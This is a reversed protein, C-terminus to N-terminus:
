AFTGYGVQTLSLRIRNACSVSEPLGQFSFGISHAHADWAAKSLIPRGALRLDRLIGKAIASKLLRVGGEHEGCFALYAGFFLSKGTGWSNSYWPALGSNITEGISRCRPRANRHRRKRWGRMACSTLSRSTRTGSRLVAGYWNSRTRITRLWNAARPGTRSWPVPPPFSIPISPSLANWRKTRASSCQKAGDSYASDYYYRFALANWAPAYSSDLGFSKELMAIAAKNPEPDHAVSVSRLQLDYAEENRPRTGADERDTAAGLAPVLGPRVKATVEARMAIMDAAGVNLTERWKTLNNEMDVAELTIQLQDGEKLYHGTVIETVHM